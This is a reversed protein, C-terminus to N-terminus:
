GLMTELLSSEESAELTQYINTVSISAPEWVGITENWRLVQLHEKSATDVNTIADLTFPSISVAGDIDQLVVSGDATATLTSVVGATATIVGGQGTLTLGAFEPSSTPALDQPASITYTGVTTVVTIQNTTGALTRKVIGTGATNVSIIKDAVSPSVSGSENLRNVVSTSTLLGFAREGGDWDASHGHQPENSIENTSDVFSHGRLVAVLNETLESAAVTVTTIDSDADYVSATVDTNLQGDEGLDFLLRLGIPFNDLEDGTVTFQDANVYTAIM